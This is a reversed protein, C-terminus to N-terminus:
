YESVPIEADAVIKQAKGCNVRVIKGDKTKTMSKVTETPKKDKCNMWNLIDEASVPTLDSELNGSAMTTTSGFIFMAAFAAIIMKKM